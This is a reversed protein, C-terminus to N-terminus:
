QGRSIGFRSVLGMGLAYTRSIFRKARWVIRADFQPLVYLDGRDLGNITERAVRDPSMGVKDMLSDLIGRSEGVIKGNAARNTKALTPCLAAVAVGTGALETAMTETLALAGGAKSVNYVSM